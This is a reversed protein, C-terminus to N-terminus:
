DATVIAAIELARAPDGGGQLTWAASLGVCALVWQRLRAADLSTTTAVQTLRRALRGPQAAEPWPNCFLNAFDYGREGVLGKPDIALWGKPGFDLVNDHHLDGHLVAVERPDSLLRRAAAAAHDLLGGHTRAAPELARFWIELPRVTDPPPSPRPAHLAAATQCIIDTAREDSEARVLDALTGPQTARELLLADRERRLVRAAGGGAWWAMVAAGDREEPGGAIKLMAPEGEFLVPALRSGFPTTFAAGDPTLNWRALWPAVDIRSTTPPREPVTM